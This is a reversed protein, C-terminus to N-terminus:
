KFGYKAVQKYLEKETAENIAQYSSEMNADATLNFFRAPIIGGSKSSSPRIIRGARRGKTVKSPTSRVKYQFDHSSDRNKLTGYNKWYLLFFADWEKGSKTVYKLKRGFYGVAVSLIGGTPKYRKVALTTNFKKMSSPTNDRLAKKMVNGGKVFAALVTNNMIKEQDKFFPNLEDLESFDVSIGNDSM